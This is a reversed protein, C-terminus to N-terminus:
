DPCSGPEEMAVLKVTAALLLLKGVLQLVMLGLLTRLLALQLMMLLVTPHLVVLGAKV